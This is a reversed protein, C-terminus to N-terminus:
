LLTCTMVDSSLFGASARLPRPTKCLSSEGNALVTQSAVFLYADRGNTKDIIEVFLDSDDRRQIGQALGAFGSEIQDFDRGHFVRGDAPDHIVALPFVLLLFLFLLGVGGVDGLELLEANAGNADVIVVLGGLEVLGFAEELFSVFDLEVDHEAAALHG